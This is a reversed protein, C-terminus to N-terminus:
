VNAAFMERVVRMSFTNPFTVVDAMNIIVAM